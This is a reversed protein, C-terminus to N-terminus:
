GDGGSDLTEIDFAAAMLERTYAEKPEAFVQRAPGREVVVGDKMVILESALARVVRLDHSIFLYALGHRDQLLRLLEIIQAQVTKDLASTPEDFVIARAGSGVAPPRSSPYQTTRSRNPSAGDRTTTETGRPFRSRSSARARARDTGALTIPCVPPSRSAIETAPAITASMPSPSASRVHALPSVRYKSCSRFLM